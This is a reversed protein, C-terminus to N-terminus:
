EASGVSLLKKSGNDALAKSIAAQFRAYKDGMVQVHAKQLESAITNAPFRLAAQLGFTINYNNPTDVKDFLLIIANMPMDGLVKDVQFQPFYASEYQMFPGLGYGHYSSFTAPSSVFEGANTSFHKASYEMSLPQKEVYGALELANAPTLSWKDTTSFQYEIPSSTMLVKVLGSTNNTSSLNQIRLAARQPRMQIPADGSDRFKHLPSSEASGTLVAGTAVTWAGVQYFGRVSPNFIVLIQNTTSTSITLRGQCNYTLYNGLSESNIPPETKGFPSMYRILSASSLAGGLSSHSSVVGSRRPNTYTQAYQIVKAVRRTSPRAPAKAQRKKKAALKDPNAAYYAKKQATTYTM